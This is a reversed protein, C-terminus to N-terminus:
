PIAMEGRSVPVAGGQVRVACIGGKDSVITLGIESPRGMEIGQRLRLSTVPAKVEGAAALQAALIASASGTAPDEPIGASPSFMRARLDCGADGPAYVYASDVQAIEMIRSWVPERPQAQALDSLARLPIYLFAPGGQWVAPRHAGFGIRESPLGLAEALLATDPVAGADPPHPVVPASLEARVPGDDRWVRVPVLGAEEELAIETEFPGDPATKLALHIACGITPHGAFPIEGAPFFIRVKASHAPDVPEHVFITESLNFERAITQMQDTSLGDAGEVIALPNGSFPEATFVDYTHFCLAKRGESLCAAMPM